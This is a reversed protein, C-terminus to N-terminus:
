LKKIEEIKSSIKEIKNMIEEENISSTKGSKVEDALLLCTLMLVQTESIGIGSRAIIRTKEDVYNALEQVRAEEGDSCAVSFNRGNINVNINSM